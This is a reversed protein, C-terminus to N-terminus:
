VTKKNLIQQNDLYKLSQIINSYNSYGTHVCKTTRNYVSPFGKINKSIWDSNYTIEFKDLVDESKLLELQKISWKDDSVVLVLNKQCFIDYDFNPVTEELGTRNDKLGPGQSRIESPFTLFPVPLKSPHPSIFMKSKYYPEEKDM